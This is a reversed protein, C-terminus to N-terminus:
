APTGSHSELFDLRTRLAEVRERATQLRVQLGHNEAELAVIRERLRQADASNARGGGAARVAELEAEARLSRRRWAALEDQVHRILDDLQAFAALDPRVYSSAM